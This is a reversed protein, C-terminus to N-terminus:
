SLDDALRLRSMNYHVSEVEHELIVLDGSAIAIYTEVKRLENTLYSMRCGRNRGDYPRYLSRHRGFDYQMIAPFLKLRTREAVLGDYRRLLCGLEDAIKNAKERLVSPQAQFPPLPALSAPACKSLLPPLGAKVERIDSPCFCSCAPTFLFDDLVM